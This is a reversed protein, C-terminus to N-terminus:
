ARVMLVLVEPKQIELLPKDEFCPRENRGFRELAGGDKAVCSCLQKRSRFWTPFHRHAQDLDLHLHLDDLEQAPSELVVRFRCLAKFREFRLTISFFVAVRMLNLLHTAPDRAKRSSVSLCGTLKLVM